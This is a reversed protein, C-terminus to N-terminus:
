IGGTQKKKAARLRQDQVRQIEQLLAAKGVGTMESLQGAYVEREM